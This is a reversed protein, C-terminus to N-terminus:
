HVIIFRDDLVSALQPGVVAWSLRGLGCGPRTMVVSPWGRQDAFDVLQRVGALILDIDSPDRWDHKTPLTALRYAPFLHVRNGDSRLLVGLERPLNPFRKAAQLACGAGMIASGDRRCMGNTTVVRACAKVSWLDQRLERM